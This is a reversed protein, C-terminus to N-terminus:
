LLKLGGTIADIADADNPGISICTLTPVGHFETFGADVVEHVELGAEQAKASLALLEEESDVRLVIKTMHDHTIWDVLRQENSGDGAIFPFMAAHAAQACAKGMRMKLDHRLCVVQKLVPKRTASM